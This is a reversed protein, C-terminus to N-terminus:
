HEYKKLPLIRFNFWYDLTMNTKLSLFVFTNELFSCQVIFGGM